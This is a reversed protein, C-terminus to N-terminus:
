IDRNHCFIECNLDVSCVNRFRDACITRIGKTCKSTYNKYKKKIKVIQNVSIICTFIYINQTELKFKIYILYLRRSTFKLVFWFFVNLKSFLLCLFNSTSYLKQKFMRFITKFRIYHVTIIYMCHVNLATNITRKDYRKFTTNLM